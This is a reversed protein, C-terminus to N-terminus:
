PLSMRRVISAIALQRWGTTACIWPMQTPPPRSIAPRASMRM